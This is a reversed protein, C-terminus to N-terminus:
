LQLGADALDIDAWSGQVFNKGDYWTATSASIDYMNHGGMESLSLDATRANWDSLVGDVSGVRHFAVTSVSEPDEIVYMWYNYGDNDGDPDVFKIHTMQVGLSNDGDFSISTAAAAENWWEADRFYITLPGGEESGSGSDSSGPTSSSDGAGGQKETWGAYLTWDATIDIEWDFPTLLYDDIYWQDFEFNAKTPDDPKSAKDGDKVKLAAVASGGNTVFTITWEREGSPSCSALLMMASAALIATKKM